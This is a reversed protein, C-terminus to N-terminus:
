ALAPQRGARRENGSGCVGGWSKLLRPSGARVGKMEAAVFSGARVGKMEAAVFGGGGWSKLLRPSGARVGKMEAAM